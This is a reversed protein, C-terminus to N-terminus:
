INPSRADKRGAHGEGRLYKQREAKFGKIMSRVWLRYAENRQAESEFPVFRVIVEKVEWKRRRRTKGGAKEQKM